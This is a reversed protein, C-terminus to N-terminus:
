KIHQSLCLRKECRAEEEQTGKGRASGSYISTGRCHGGSEHETVKSVKGVM